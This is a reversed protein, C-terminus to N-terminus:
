EVSHLKVACRASECPHWRNYKMYEKNRQAVKPQQSEQMFRYLLNQARLNAGFVAASRNRYKEAVLFVADWNRWKILKLLREWWSCWLSYLVRKPPVDFQRVNEIFAAYEIVTFELVTQTATMTHISTPVFLNAWMKGGKMRSIDPIYITYKQWENTKRANGSELCTIIIIIIVHLKFERQSWRITRDKKPALRRIKASGKGEIREGADNWECIHVKAWPGWVRSYPNTVSQTHDSNANFLLLLHIRLNWSSDLRNNRHM